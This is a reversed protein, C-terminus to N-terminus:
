SRFGSVRFADITEQPKLKPASSGQHRLQARDPDLPQATAVSRVYPSTPLHTTDVVALASLRVPEVVYQVTCALEIGRDSAGVPVPWLYLGVKRCLHELCLRLTWQLILTCAHRARCM